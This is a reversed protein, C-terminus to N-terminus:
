QCSPTCDVRVQATFVRCTLNGFRGAVDGGRRTRVGSDNNKISSDTGAYKMLWRTIREYRASRRV